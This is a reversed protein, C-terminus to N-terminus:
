WEKFVERLTVAYKNFCDVARAKVAMHVLLLVQLPQESFLLYIWAPHRHSTFFPQLAM